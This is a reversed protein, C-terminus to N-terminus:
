FLYIIFCEFDHLVVFLYLGKFVKWLSKKINKFRTILPTGTEWLAGRQQVEDILMEQFYKEKINNRKQETEYQAFHQSNYDTADFFDQQLDVESEQDTEQDLYEPDYDYSEDNESDM